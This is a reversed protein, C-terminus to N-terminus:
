SNPNNSMVRQALTMTSNIFSEFTIIDFPANYDCWSPAQIYIDEFKRFCAYSIDLVYAYPLIKYFYTPDQNVLGRLTDEDATEIFNKFGKIKGLIENGYTSREPLYHLFVTMGSICVLGIIYGLIYTPEQVLVPLIFNNLPM